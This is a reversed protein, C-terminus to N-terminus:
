IMRNTFVPIFSYATVLLWMIGVIIASKSLKIDAIKSFGFVLLLVQWIVFLDFRRLIIDWAEPQLLSYFNNTFYAFAITIIGGISAPVYALSYVSVVSMYRTKGGFLSILGWYILSGLFVAAVAGVFGGGIAIGITFPKAIQMANEAQERTMDPQQSLMMDIQPGVTLQVTVLTVIVTLLVVILTKLFWTPRTKYDEFLKNPNTFFYKIRELITLKKVEEVEVMNNTEM